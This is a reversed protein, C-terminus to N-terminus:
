QRRGSRNGIRSGITGLFVVRSARLLGIFSHNGTRTTTRLMGSLDVLRGRYASAHANSAAGTEGQDPGIGRVQEVAVDVSQFLERSM